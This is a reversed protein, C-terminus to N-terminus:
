YNITWNGFPTPRNKPSGSRTSKEDEEYDTESFEMSSSREMADYIGAPTRDITYDLIDVGCPTDISLVVGSSNEEIMQTKMVIPEMGDEGGGRMRLVQKIIGNKDYSYGWITDNQFANIPEEMKWLIHDYDTGDFSLTCEEPDYTGLLRPRSLGFFESAVYEYKGVKQLRLYFEGKDTRTAESPANYTTDYYGVKVLPAKEDDVITLTTEKVNGINSGDVEKLRFVLEITEQQLGPIDPTSFYIKKNYESYTVEVNEILATRDSTERVTYTQDTEDIKIVDALTLERGSYDIGGTMEMEITAVVPFKEPSYMLYVSIYDKETGEDCDFTSYSFELDTATPEPNCASLTLAATLAVLIRAAIQLLKEM